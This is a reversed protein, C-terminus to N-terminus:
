ISTSHLTIKKEPFLNAMINSIAIQAEGFGLGIMPVRGTYDVSDGVAYIGSINTAMSRNVKIGRPTIDVGWKRLLRNDSKFGYAVFINDFNEIYKGDNGVKHLTLELLNDTVKINKPLYPTSIKVNNLNKLQNLSSEMGRFDPRRHILTVHKVVKALQLTWDLASDGGGLVAVRQDKYKIPDTMFYHIFKDEISSTKLPLRKPHFAGLGTALIIAKTAFESNIVFLDNNKSITEVRYNTKIAKPNISTSLNEILETGSISPYAPIDKIEKNPFLWQVQGGIKDLAEFTITKLGHLNAFYTSFIGVPGGGIIAVDYEKM